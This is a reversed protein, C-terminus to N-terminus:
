LGHAKVNKILRLVNISNQEKIGSGSQCYESPQIFSLCKNQFSFM